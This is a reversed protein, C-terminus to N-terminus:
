RKMWKYLNKRRLATPETMASFTRLDHTRAFQRLGEPRVAVETELQFLVLSRGQSTFVAPARSSFRAIMMHWINSFGPLRLRRSGEPGTCPYSEGKDM